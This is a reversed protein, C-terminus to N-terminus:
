VQDFIVYDSEDEVFAIMYLVSGCLFEREEATLEVMWVDLGILKCM